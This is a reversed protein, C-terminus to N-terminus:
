KRPRDPPPPLVPRGLEDLREAQLRKLMYLGMGAGYRRVFDDEKGDPDRWVAELVDVVPRPDKMSAGWSGLAHCLQYRFDPERRKLARLLHPVGDEAPLAGAFRVSARAAEYRVFRDKDDLRELLKAALVPAQDTDRVRSGGAIAAARVGADKDDMAKLYAEILPEAKEKDSADLSIAFAAAKRVSPDRDTTMVRALAKSAPQVRLDRLTEVARRRMEVSHHRLAEVAQAKEETRDGPGSREARIQEVAASLEAYLDPTAFSAALAAAALYAIPSLMARM